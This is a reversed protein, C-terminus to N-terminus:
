LRERAVCGYKRKLKPLEALKSPNYRAYLRELEADCDEGQLEPEPETEAPAVKAPAVVAAAQQSDLFRHIRSQLLSNPALAALGYEDDGEGGAASNLTTLWNALAQREYTQSICYVAALRTCTNRM